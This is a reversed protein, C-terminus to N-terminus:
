CKIMRVYQSQTDSLEEEQRELSALEELRIQAQIYQEDIDRM